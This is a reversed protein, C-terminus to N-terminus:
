DPSPKANEAALMVALTTTVEVKDIKKKASDIREKADRKKAAAALWLMPIVLFSVKM